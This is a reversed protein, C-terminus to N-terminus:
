ASSSTGKGGGSHYQTHCVALLIDHRRVLGISTLLCPAAEVIEAVKWSSGRRFNRFHTRVVVTHLPHRVKAQPRGVRGDYAHLVGVYVILKSTEFQAGAESKAALLADEKV